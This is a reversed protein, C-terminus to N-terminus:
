AGELITVVTRGIGWRWCPLAFALSSAAIAYSFSYGASMMAVMCLARWLEETFAGALVVVLQLDWSAFLGPVARRLPQNLLLKFVLAPLTVWSMGVLAGFLLGASWRDTRFGLQAPHIPYRSIWFLVCSLVLAYFVFLIIAWSRSAAVKEEETSPSYVPPLRKGARGPWLRPFDWVVFDALPLIALAFLLSAPLSVPGGTSM